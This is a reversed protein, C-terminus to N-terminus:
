YVMDDRDDYYYYYIDEDNQEKRNEKRRRGRKKVLNKGELEERGLERLFDNYQRVYISRVEACVLKKKRFKKNQGRM